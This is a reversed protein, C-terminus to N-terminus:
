IRAVRQLLKSILHDFHKKGVIYRLAHYGLLLCVGSACVYFTLLGPSPMHKSVDIDYKVFVFEALLFFIAIGLGAGLLKLQDGRPQLDALGIMVLICHDERKLVRIAAWWTDYEDGSEKRVQRDAKRILQAIKEEYEDQVNERNFDESVATMDPLTWGSESFYLMKREVESLSVNERQAEAVIRSVLYEKAERGSRFANM